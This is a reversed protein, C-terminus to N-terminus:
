CTEENKEGRKTLGMMGTMQGGCTPCITTQNLEEMRRLDTAIVETRTRKKGEPTQWFRQNLRGVVLLHQVSKLLDFKFEALAGFAVIDILNGSGKHDRTRRRDAHPQEQNPQGMMEDLELSFQIVPSGDPRYHREPPTSVKGTLIVRNYSTM